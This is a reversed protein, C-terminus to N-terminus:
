PRKFPIDNLREITNMTISIYFGSRVCFFLFLMCTFCETRIFHVETGLGSFFSEVQARENDTLIGSNELSLSDHSIEADTNIFLGNTPQSANLSWDPVIEFTESGSGESSDSPPVSDGVSGLRQRTTHSMSM